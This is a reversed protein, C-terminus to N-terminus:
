KYELGLSEYFDMATPEGLNKLVLNTVEDLMVVSFLTIALILFARKSMRRSLYICIPVVLYVLLLSGIGFITVSLPCVFGNISGWAWPGSDYNWYRAGDFLVYALWGGVLEVLGTVLVAVLFVVWPYRRLKYTVPIVLLAGIAYINMWPLLNGGQMYIRGETAWALLFEYLWGVFGAIVVVLFLIGIKQWRELKVGKDLYERFIEKYTKQKKVM